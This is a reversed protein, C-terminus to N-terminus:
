AVRGAIIGVEALGERLPRQDQILADFEGDSIGIVVVMGHSALLVVRQGCTDKRHRNMCTAVAGDLKQLVRGVVVNGCRPCIPDRADCVAYPRGIQRVTTM